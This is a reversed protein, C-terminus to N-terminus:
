TLLARVEHLSSLVQWALAAVEPSPLKLDPVLIVASGAAHAARVGPESDELVLCRAPAIGLRRAALLFIDPAPKGLPAEEGTVLAHFGAALNGLTRLAEERLTSTAVARRIRAADLARLLEPLGPKPPIGAAQLERWYGTWRRQFASLPFGPGLAEAVLAQGDAITRGISLEYLADSMPYGLDAAARQWAARYIRESDLMLGDMDFIVADFRSGKM